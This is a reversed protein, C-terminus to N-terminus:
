SKKSEVGNILVENFQVVSSMTFDKPGSKLFSITASFEVASSVTVM